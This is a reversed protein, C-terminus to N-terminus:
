ALWHAAAVWTALLGLVFAPVAKAYADGTRVLHTWLAGSMVAIVTISGYAALSPLWFGACLLVAAGVELIGTLLRFGPSYGFRNFDDKMSQAGALKAIGTFAFVGALLGQTLTLLLTM